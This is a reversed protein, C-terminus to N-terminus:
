GALRMLAAAIDVPLVPGASSSFHPVIALPPGLRQALAAKNEACRDFHADVENAIWGAFPVRRTRMAAVTLLAHNLCGLRLAVVLIAPIDLTIAIDAMTEEPGIPVLFGGAGEVVIIDSAAALEAFCRQIWGAQIAVSAEMAAIHPAIAPAFCYPNITEYPATVNAARALMVADANRLGASTTEAGSAVPKMAAARVGHRTLANLFAAAVATKGVGTDTGTVFIGKAM